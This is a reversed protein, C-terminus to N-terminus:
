SAKDTLPSTADLWGKVAERLADLMTPGNGAHFGTEQSFFRVYYIGEPNCHCEFLRCGKDFLTDLLLQEESQEPPLNDYADLKVMEWLKDTAKHGLYQGLAHRIAAEVQRVRSGM